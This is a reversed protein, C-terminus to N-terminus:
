VVSKRATSSFSLRDSPTWEAKLQTLNDEFSVKSDRVNYNEERLSKKLKGDILPTGFYQTPRQYGHDHSFSVVFDESAQWRLGGSFTLSSSDGRDIWGVRQHASFGRSYAFADGIAVACGAASVM